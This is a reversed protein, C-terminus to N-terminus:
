SSEQYISIEEHKVEQKLRLILSHLDKGEKSMSIKFPNGNIGKGEITIFKSYQSKRITTLCSDDRIKLGRSLEKVTLTEEGIATLYKNITKTFSHNLMGNLARAKRLNHRQFPLTQHSLFKKFFPYFKEWKELVFTGKVGEDREKFLHLLGVNALVKKFLEKEKQNYSLTIKHLGIKDIQAGGEAALLGNLAHLSQEEDLNSIIHKFLERFIEAVILSDICIRLNGKSSTNFKTRSVAPYFQEKNKIVTKLWYNVAFDEDFSGKLNIRGRWISKPLSLSTNFTEIVLNHLDPNNNAFYLKDSYHGDGHILFFSEILCPTIGINNRLTIPRQQNVFLTVFNNTRGIVRVKKNSALLQSLFIKNKQQKINKKKVIEIKIKELHAIDLTEIVKKPIHIRGWRYVKSIIEFTNREKSLRIILLDGPELNIQRCLTSPINFFPRATRTNVRSDLSGLIEETLYLEKFRFADIIENYYIIRDNVKIYCNKEFFSKQNQM